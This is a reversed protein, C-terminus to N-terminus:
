LVEDGAVEIKGKSIAQMFLAYDAANRAAYAVAYDQLVETMVKGEGLYGMLVDANGAKGHAHALAMGCSEAYEYLYVDDMAELDVSVKMDRLQRVYFHEPQDSTSAFGLFIDSAAQMLQQGRIVREGEHATKELLPALISPNAEKMQLILPERDGDEFLAIAARTGVSGVGVVKLATDTLRYRDFLVQRDYKLSDRYQQFFALSQTAFPEGASPHRLLPPEDIFRRQGSQPDKETLKPLISHTTRHQASELTKKRKKRVGADGTNQLLDQADVKEYWIQLPSLDMMELLHQRYADLMVQVATVGVSDTQKIENAAIILSTALRKLDWEFPARLTEDFDNIGFLLNREPSAFGGFNLLHCDGCIQQFLGSHCSEWALDYLMLSPMGRFFAFPSVSMRKARVPKLGELRGLNSWQYIHQATIGQPRQSLQALQSRAVIKRQQKGLAVGDERNLLKGQHEHRTLDISDATWLQAPLPLAQSKAM